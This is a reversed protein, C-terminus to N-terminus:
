LLFVQGLGKLTTKKKQVCEESNNSKGSKLKGLSLLLSSTQDLITWLKSEDMTNLDAINFEISVKQSPAVSPDQKTTEMVDSNNPKNVDTEHPKETQIKIVSPCVVSRNDEELLDSDVSAAPANLDIDFHDKSAEQYNQNMNQTCNRKLEEEVNTSVKNEEFSPRVLKRRKVKGSEKGLNADVEGAKSRRKFNLNPLQPEISEEEELELQSPLNLEAHFCDMAQEGILPIIGDATPRNKHNWQETKQSLSSVLQNLTPGSAEQSTLQKSLSLRSFVSTQPPNCWNKRNTEAGIAHQTHRPNIIGNELDSADSTSSCTGHKKMGDNKFEQDCDLIQIYDTSSTKQQYIAPVAKGDREAEPYTPIGLKNLKAQPLAEGSFCRPECAHINNYAGSRDQNFCIDCPVQYDSNSSLSSQPYLRDYPTFTSNLHNSGKYTPNQNAYGSTLSFNHLYGRSLPYSQNAVFKAGRPEQATCGSPLTNHPYDQPLLYSQKAVLQLRSTQSCPASVHTSVADTMPATPFLERQSHVDVQDHRSLNPAIQAGFTETRMPMLMNPYAEVSLPSDTQMSTPTSYRRAVESINPISLRSQDNCDPVDPTLSEKDLIGKSSHNIELSENKTYDHIPREVRRDDFLEYLRVVQLDTSAKITV